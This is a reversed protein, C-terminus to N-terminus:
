WITIRVELEQCALNLGVGGLSHYVIDALRASDILSRTFYTINTYTLVVYMVILFRCTRSGGSVVHLM